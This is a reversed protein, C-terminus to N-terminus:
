FIVTDVMSGSMKPTQGSGECMNFVFEFLSNLTLRNNNRAVKIGQVLNATFSSLKVTDVSKTSKSCEYRRESAIMHLKTSTTSNLQKSLLKDTSTSFETGDIEVSGTQVLAGSREADVILIVDGLVQELLEVLSDGDLDGVSYDAGYNKSESYRLDKAGFYIDNGKSDKADARAFGPGSIFVVTVDNDTATDALTKIASVLDGGLADILVKVDEVGLEAFAKAVAKADENATEKGQVGVSLVHLSSSAPANMMMECSALMIVSAVLVALVTVKKVTNEM